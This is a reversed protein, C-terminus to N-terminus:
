TGAEKAFPRSQPIWNETTLLRRRIAETEATPPHSTRAIM